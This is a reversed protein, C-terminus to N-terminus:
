PCDWVEVPLSLDAILPACRPCGYLVVGPGSSGGIFRVPIPLTTEEGCEVCRERRMPPLPPFADRANV